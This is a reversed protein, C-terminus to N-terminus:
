RADPEDGADGAARTAINLVEVRRFGNPFRLLYSKAEVRADAYKGQRLLEVIHLYADDEAKSLERDPATQREASREGRPKPPASAVARPRPPTADADAEANANANSSPAANAGLAVAPARDASQLPNSARSPESAVSATPAASEPQWTDGAGLSFETLGRLRIAVRGQSVSIHVTRQGAVRVEFVTGVDELEGDPLRVIIRRGDHPRVTFSAFGQELDIRDLERETHESWRAGAEPRVEIASAFPEVSESRAWPRSLALGIGVAAIAAFGLALTARRISRPRPADLVTENLAAILRQRARRTTLPDRVLEPLRSISEGLASLAREEEACEACTARHRLASDLDKGRLRGDRAAEIQWKRRCIGSKM